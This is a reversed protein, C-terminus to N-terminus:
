LLIFVTVYWAYGAAIKTSCIITLTGTVEKESYEDSILINHCTPIFNDVVMENSSSCLLLLSEVGHYITLDNM